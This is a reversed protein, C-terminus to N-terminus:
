QEQIYIFTQPEVEDVCSGDPATTPDNVFQTIINIACASTRAKSYVVHQEPLEYAFSNPYHAQLRENWYTPTAIDFTGNLFLVPVDSPVPQQVDDALPEVGLLPCAFIYNEADYLGAIISGYSAETDDNMAHPLTSIVPDEACAIAFHTLNSPSMSEVTSSIFPFFAALNQEFFPESPNSFITIMAPVYDIRDLAETQNITLAILLDSYVVNIGNIEAVYPEDRYSDIATDYVTALDPFAANCTEDAACMEFIVNLGHQYKTANSEAWNTDEDLAVSGDFILGEVSDPFDRLVHQGLITGYSVGFFIIKEYGLSSRLLDVDAANELSNYAGFDIIGTEM